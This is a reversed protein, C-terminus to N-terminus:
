LCKGFMYLEKFIEM